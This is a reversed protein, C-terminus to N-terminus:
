SGLLIQPEVAAPLEPGATVTYTGPSVIEVGGIEDRSQGKKTSTHTLGPGEISLAPGGGVPTVSIELGPPASFAVDVM